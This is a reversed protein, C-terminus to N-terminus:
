LSFHFMYLSIITYLSLLFYLSPPLFMLCVATVEVWKTPKIKLFIYVNEWVWQVFIITEIGGKFIEFLILDTSTLTYGPIFLGLPALGLSGSLNYPSQLCGTRSYFSFSFSVFFTLLRWPAYQQPHWQCKKKSITTHATPSLALSYITDTHNLIAIQLKLCLFRQHLILSM